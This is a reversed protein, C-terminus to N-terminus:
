RHRLAYYCLVFILISGVLLLGAVDASHLHPVLSGHAFM